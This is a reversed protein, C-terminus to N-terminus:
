SEIGARCHVEHRWLTVGQEWAPAHSGSGTENYIVRLLRFGLEPVPWLVHVLTPDM